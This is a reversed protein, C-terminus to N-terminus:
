DTAQAKKGVLRGKWEDAPYKLRNKELKRTM